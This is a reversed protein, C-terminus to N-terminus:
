EPITWPINSVHMRVDFAPAASFSFAIALLSRLLFPPPFPLVEHNHTRFCLAAQESSSDGIPFFCCLGLIFSLLSFLDKSLSLLRSINSTLDGELVFLGIAIHM